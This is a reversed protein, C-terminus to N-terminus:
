MGPTSGPSRVRGFSIGVPRKEPAGSPIAFARRDSRSGRRRHDRRSKTRRSPSSARDALRRAPRARRIRWRAAASPGLLMSCGAALSSRDPVNGRWRAVAETGLGSKAAAARISPKHNDLARVLAPVAPSAAQGLEGLMAAAKLRDAEPEQGDLFLAAVANVLVPAHPCQPKGDSSPSGSNAGAGWCMPGTGGLVSRAVERALDGDSVLLRAAKKKLGADQGQLKAALFPVPLRVVVPDGALAMLEASACRALANAAPATFESTPAGRSLGLVDRLVGECRPTRRAVSLDCCVYDQEMFRNMLDSGSAATKMKRPAFYLLGAGLLVLLLLAAIMGARGAERSSSSSLRKRSAM